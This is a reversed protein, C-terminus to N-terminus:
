LQPNGPPLPARGPRASLLVSGYVVEEIKHLDERTFLGESLAWEIYSKLGSLMEERIIEAIRRREDGTAAELARAVVADSPHTRRSLYKTVAAPTVGLLEAVERHSRTAALVEIIKLRAEKGLLHIFKPMGGSMGRAWTGLAM